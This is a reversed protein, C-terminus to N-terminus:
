SVRVRWGLKALAMAKDFVEKKTLNTFGRGYPSQDPPGAWADGFEELLRRGMWDLENNMEIPEAIEFNHALAQGITIAADYDRMFFWAGQNGKMSVSHHYSAHFDRSIEPLPPQNLQNQVFNDDVNEFVLLLNFIPENSGWTWYPDKRLRWRSTPEISINM